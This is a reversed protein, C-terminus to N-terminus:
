KKVRAYIDNGTPMDIMLKERMDPNQSNREQVDESDCNETVVGSNRQRRFVKSYTETAEIIRTFREIWSSKWIKTREPDLFRFLGSKVKFEGSSDVDMPLEMYPSEAKDYSFSITDAPNIGENAIFPAALSYVSDTQMNSRNPPLDGEEFPRSQYFARLV